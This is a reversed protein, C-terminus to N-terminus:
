MQKLIQYFMITSIYIIMLVRKSSWYNYSNYLAHSIQRGSKTLVLGHKKLINRTSYKASQRLSFPKLLSIHHKHM